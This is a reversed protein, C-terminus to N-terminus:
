GCVCKGVAALAEVASTVAVALVAVLDVAVVVVSAAAVALDVEESVAAEGAAADVDAWIALCVEGSCRRCVVM